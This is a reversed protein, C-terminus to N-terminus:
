RITSRRRVCLGLRKPHRTDTMSATSSILLPCGGRSKVPADTFRLSFRRKPSRQWSNSCWRRPQMRYSNLAASRMPLPSLRSWIVKKIDTEDMTIHLPNEIFEKFEKSNKGLESITFPWLHFLLYRGALSDGGKQYIDLRGSGCILFQYNDHFQDYIGKLYNKWDKYKHIEDFIILPTSSDKRAVKQFFTPNEILAARHDVIDWNFYLHNPYSGSIIRSLTTKGAQRPGALFIMSKDFALEKWINLYSIREEM